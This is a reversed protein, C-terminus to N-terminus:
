YSSLPSREVVCCIDRSKSLPYGMSSALIRRSYSVGSLLEYFTVCVNNGTHTQPMDVSLCQPELPRLLNLSIFSNKKKDLFFRLIVKFFARKSGCPVSITPKLVLNTITCVDIPKTRYAESKHRILPVPVAGLVTLRSVLYLVHITERDQQAMRPFLAELSSKTPTQLRQFLARNGQRIYLWM